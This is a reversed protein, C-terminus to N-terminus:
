RSTDADEVRSPQLGFRARWCGLTKTTRTLLDFWIVSGDDKDLYDSIEAVPFGEAVLNGSRYVRTM